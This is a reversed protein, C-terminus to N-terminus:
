ISTKLKISIINALKFSRVANRMEDFGVINLTGDSNMKFTANNVIRDLTVDGKSSKYSLIWNLGDIGDEDRSQMLNSITSFVDYNATNM